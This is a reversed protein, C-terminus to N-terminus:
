KYRKHQQRNLRMVQMHHYKNALDKHNTLVNGHIDCPLSVQREQKGHNKYVASLQINSWRGKPIDKIQKATLM